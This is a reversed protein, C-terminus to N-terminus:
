RRTASAGSPLPALAQSHPPVRWSPTRSGDGADPPRDSGVPLFRFAALRWHPRRLPRQDRGPGTLGCDAPLLYAATALRTARHWFPQAQWAPLIVTAAADQEHVLDLVADILDFPPNANNNFPWWAQHFTDIAEDGPCWWRANFRPLHSTLHCAFRDVDHPGWLAQLDAFVAPSVRWDTRDRVRSLQDARFNNASPLWSARLSLNRARLFRALRHLVPLLHRSRTAMNNIVYMAVRNDVWLALEGGGPDWTRALSM